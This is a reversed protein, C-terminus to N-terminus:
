PHTRSSVYREVIEAAGRVDQAYWRARRKAREEAPMDGPAGLAGRRREAARAVLLAVSVSLNFSRTFGFMPIEVRRDCAALAERTLGEHENGVWLAIPEAPPIDDLTAGAGPVAAVLTMGAAGLARRASAVDPHRHLDLWKECSMTIGSAFRFPGTGEVAHVASLGLGEISRIAAAGNHPDYLNELVVTLGCLRADLVAEIRARREDSLIPGLAAVVVEAGHREVLAEAEHANLM